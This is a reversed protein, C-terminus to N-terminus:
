KITDYRTEKFNEKIWALTNTCDDYVSLWLGTSTSTSPITYDLELYSDADYGDAYHYQVYQNMAGTKCDAIIAELLGRADPSDIETLSMYRNQYYIGYLTSELALFEAETMQTVCEVRSLIPRLAQGAESGTPISYYRSLTRGSKLKYEIGISVYYINEGSHALAQRGAKVSALHVETITEIDAPTTLTIDDWLSASSTYGRGVTVSEVDEVDPVKRSIGLPDTWTLVLILAVCAAFIGLNRFSKKNFVRTSKSLLMLGGFFGVVMGAALFIYEAGTGFIEAFLQFFAGVTLTFLILFVPETAKFAMFDGACELKRKRYLVLGLYMLGLGIAACIAYYGWGTGISLTFNGATGDYYYTGDPLITEKLTVQILNGYEMMKAAPCLLLFPQTPIRIGFLLPQFITQGFWYLLLSFFNILAYVTLYGLRNGTLMISFVATGLFFCFGLFSAAFWAPPIIWGKGLFPMAMLAVLLNPVASFTLASLLNTGFWTERKLPMAHLANCLRATFLDGFLLIALVGAYILNVVIMPEFMDKANSCRYYEESMTIVPLAYLLLIITYIAWAPAFRTLNKRYVTANFFSTRSKM